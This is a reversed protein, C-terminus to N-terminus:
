TESSQQVRRITHSTGLIAIKQPSDISHKGPIAEFYKDPNDGMEHEVNTTYRYLFGQIKKQRVNRQVPTAVDTM